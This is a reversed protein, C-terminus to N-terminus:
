EGARPATAQPPEMPCGHATMLAAIAAMIATTVQERTAEPPFTLPKGFVIKLPARRISKRNTPWMEYTGLCAVPVVPVGSKQVLLAIGPLAPNLKGTRTRGGEPFMAVAEGQALWDLVRRLTARDPSNRRVPFGKVRDNIYGLLRNQWMESKGMLWPPRYGYLAAGILMPDLYSAHNSALLVGGSPPVNELGIVQWRTYFRFVLRLLRGILHYILNRGARPHPQWDRLAPGSTKEEATTAAKASTVPPPAVKESM